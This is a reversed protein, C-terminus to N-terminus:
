AAEKAARVVEMAAAETSLQLAIARISEIQAQTDPSRTAVENLIQNTLYKLQRDTM